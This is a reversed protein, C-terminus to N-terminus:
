HNAPGYSINRTSMETETGPERFAAYKEERDRIKRLVVEKGVYRGSSEGKDSVVVEEVVYREKWKKGEGEKFGGSGGMRAGSRMGLVVLEGITEWGNKGGDAVTMVWGVFVVCVLVHLLLVVAGLFILRSEQFGYGYGWRSSSFRMETFRSEDAFASKSIGLVQMSPQVLQTKGTTENLSTETSGPSEAYNQVYYVDSPFSPDMLSSPHLTGSAVLYIPLPDQLRSLSDTIYISLAVELCATITMNDGGNPYHFGSTTNYYTNSDICKQGIVDLITRNIPEPSLISDIWPTALINSAFSQTFSIAPLPEPYLASSDSDVNIAANPNPNSDFVAATGSSSDWFATTPMWRADITCTYLSRNIRGEYGSIIQPTSFLAALSPAVSGFQSVDVFSSNVITSNIDSSLSAYDSTQIEWDASAIPDNTYPPWAMRSHQLALSTANGAYGACEVEVLPKRITVTKGAAVFSLDYRALLEIDAAQITSYADYGFLNIDSGVMTLVTGYSVLLNALFKSLTSTLYVMQDGQNVSSTQGVMYRLFPNGQSGIEEISKNITAPGENPPIAFLDDHQMWYRIGSTPCEGFLSANAQSCQPPSNAATLISPYLMSANAGIYVQFDMNGPAVWLKNIPWFQLRPLMTIASSPGALMGLVFLGLFISIYRYSLSRFEASLPYVLSHLQFSSSLFGLEVGQKEACKKVYHLLMAALSAAILSAHLQAAFQLANLVANTNEGPVQWFVQRFTLTLVGLSIAISLIHILSKALTGTRGKLAALLKSTRKPKLSLISDTTASRPRERKSLDMTSQQTKTLTHISTILRLISVQEFDLEPLELLPAINDGERPLM